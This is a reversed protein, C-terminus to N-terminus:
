SKKVRRAIINSQEDWWFDKPRKMITWPWLPWWALNIWAILMRVFMNPKENTPILRFGLWYQGVTQKNRRIHWSFYLFMAVFNSMILTMHITDTPRFETRHFSWQWQGTHMYELLLSLFNTPPLTLSMVICLDVMLATYRRILGVRLEDITQTSKQPWRLLALGILPFILIAIPDSSVSIM